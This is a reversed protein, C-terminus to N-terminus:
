NNFYRIMDLQKVFNKRCYDNYINYKLKLIDDMDVLNYKLEKFIDYMDGITYIHKAELYLKDTFGNLTSIPCTYIKKNQLLVRTYKYRKDINLKDMDDLLKLYIKQLCKTDTLSCHFNLPINNLDNKFLFEYVTALKYNPRINYLEKVIPYADIFFWNNPMKVNCMKFNNELIIQDFGFNNYAIWYINNNGYKNKLTNKISNCLVITEIANNVKLKNLDIGHISTGDVIGNYPYVYDNLLIDGNFDLMTFQMICTTYYDLGNTELDYFIYTNTNIKNNINASNM